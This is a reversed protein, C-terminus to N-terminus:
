EAMILNVVTASPSSFFSTLMENVCSTNKTVACGQVGEACASMKFVGVLGGNLATSCDGTEAGLNKPIDEIEFYIHVHVDSSVVVLDGGGCLM